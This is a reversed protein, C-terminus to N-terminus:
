GGLPAAPDRGGGSTGGSAAPAAEEVQEGNTFCLKNRKTAFTSESLQPVFPGMAAAASLTLKCKCRQM